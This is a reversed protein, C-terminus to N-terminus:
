ENKRKLKNLWDSINSNFDEISTVFMACGGRLNIYDIFNQQGVERDKGTFKWGEKKMEVAMFIGVTKGVMEPTITVPMIAIRDSSKFEANQKDSINNLGFRVVRGDKDKLAGSNNRMLLIQSKAAELQVLQDVEDELKKGGLHQDPIYRYKQNAHYADCAPCEGEKKIDRTIHNHKM